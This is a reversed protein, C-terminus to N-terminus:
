PVTPARGRVIRIVASILLLAVAVSFIIKAIEAPFGAIGGFSVIAAILVVILFTLVWGLM